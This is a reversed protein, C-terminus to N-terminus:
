PTRLKRKSISNCALLEKSGRDMCGSSAAAWSETKEDIGGSLDRGAGFAAEEGSGRRGGGGNRPKKNAASALVAPSRSCNGM